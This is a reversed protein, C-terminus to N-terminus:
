EKIQNLHELALLHLVVSRQGAAYMVEQPTMAPNFRPEAFRRNLLDMMEEVSRPFRAASAENTPSLDRPM